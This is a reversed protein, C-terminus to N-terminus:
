EFEIVATFDLYYHTNYPFLKDDDVKGGDVYVFSAGYMAKKLQNYLKFDLRPTYVNLSVFYEDCNHESESYNGGKEAIKVIIYRDPVKGDSFEPTNPYWPIKEALGDLAQELREDVTM